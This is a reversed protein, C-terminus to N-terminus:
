RIPSAIASRRRCLLLGGAAVLGLTGPEPVEAIRFGLLDLGLTPNGVAYNDAGVKSATSSYGGGRSQRGVTAGVIPAVAENWEWVNGSQDFTGHPGESNEFEGVPTFWYPAGLAPIFNANNGPDPTLVASSPNTSSRTAFRWYGAGGPKGPDFYAAKYWESETPIVYRAHSTRTVANLTAADTAGNLYYSGDETTALGQSGTPQGNTLWNAFRAASAWSVFNVPRNARDASVSYLYNGPSGSRQIQSGTSSSVQQPDYLGYPDSAAVANLFQTYQATTVEFSGIKYAYAVSGVGAAVYTTDAANGPNGVAVLGLSTQGAPMNFVDAGHASIALASLLTCCGALRYRGPM